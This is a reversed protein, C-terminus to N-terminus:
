YSVATISYRPGPKLIGAKESVDTFTGDGNNHFLVNTDGALGRPGCMVPIGKWQCSAPEQPQRRKPLISSSTTASSSISIAMATTTSGPAAPAGAVTRRLPRSQAHCRHLHRRRQQPLPHQTGLLLLVSRGLRRQRLRRRVRRNALRHAGTRIKRHRRHVHRRSQKQLSAFHASHRCALQRGLRTGNTLYIDLWGDNDYDFFAIGSGKAEIIYRKHNPGGWVNPINLGAERAVDVFHVPSNMRRCGKVALSAAKEMELTAHRARRAAHQRSRRPFLRSFATASFEYSVITKKLFAASLTSQPGFDCQIMKHESDQSVSAACNRRRRERRHDSRHAREDLKIWMGAPGPSKWRISRRASGWVSIFGRTAAGVHLEHRGQGARCAVFGESTLKLSAGIGDRNSRTGILM